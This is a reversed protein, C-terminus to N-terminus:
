NRSSKSVNIIAILRANSVCRCTVQPPTIHRKHRCRLLGVFVAGVVVVLCAGGVGIYFINGLIVAVLGGDAAGAASQCSIFM